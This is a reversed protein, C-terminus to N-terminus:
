ESVGSVNELIANGLVFANLALYEQTKKRADAFLKVVVQCLSELYTMQQGSVTLSATKIYESAKNLFNILVVIVQEERTDFRNETM